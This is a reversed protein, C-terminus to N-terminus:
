KIYKNLIILRSQLGPLFYTQVQQRLHFYDRWDKESVINSIENQTRIFPIEKEALIKVIPYIFEHEYADIGGDVYHSFFDPYVPMEVVVIKISKSKLDLFKKFGDLDKSAIHYNKLFSDSDQRIVFNITQKNSIILGDPQMISNIYDIQERYQPDRYKLFALWNRYLLSNDIWWGEFSTIGNKHLIWPTKFIERTDNEEGLFDIPSIGIILFNPNAQNILFNTLPPLAELRMNSLGMNFCLPRSGGPNLLQLDLISPELGVEVMSTGLFFCNPTKIKSFANLRLLKVDM